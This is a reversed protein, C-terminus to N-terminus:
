HALLTFSSLFNITEGGRKMSSLNVTYSLTPHCNKKIKDWGHNTM